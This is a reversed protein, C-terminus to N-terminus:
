GTIKLIRERTRFLEENLFSFIAGSFGTKRSGPWRESGPVPPHGGKNEAETQGSSPSRCRQVALIASASTERWQGQPKPFEGTKLLSNTSGLFPSLRSCYSICRFWGNIKLFCENTKQPFYPMPSWTGLASGNTRLWRSCPKSFHSINMGPLHRLSTWFYAERPSSSTPKLFSFKAHSNFNRFSVVLILTAKQPRKGFFVQAQRLPCHDPLWEKSQHDSFHQTCNRQYSKPRGGWGSVTM